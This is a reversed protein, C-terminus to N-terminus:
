KVSRLLLFQVRNINEPQAVVLVFHQRLVLRQWGEDYVAHGVPVLSTYCVRRAVKVHLHFNVRPTVSLVRRLVGAPGLGQQPEVGVHFVPRRLPLQQM